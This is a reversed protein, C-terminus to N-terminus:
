VPLVTTHKVVRMILTSRYAGIGPLKALRDLVFRQYDEVDRAVVTLQFDWEGFLIMCEIVEPMASVSASFGDIADRTQAALRVDVKVRVGLGIREPDVLAVYRSIVGAEELARVRRLTPAATLAIHEALADNRMAGDRQLERLIRRDADDLKYTPM